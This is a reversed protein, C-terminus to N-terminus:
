GLAVILVAFFLVKATSILGLRRLKPKQKQEVTKLSAVIDEILPLFALGAPHSFLAAAVGGAVLLSCYILGTRRLGPFTAYRVRFSSAFYFLFFAAGLFLHRTVGGSVSSAIVAVLGMIAMGCAEALFRKGRGELYYNLAMLGLAAGYLLGLPPCLWASYSIGAAAPLVLAAMDPLYEWRRGRIMSLLPSKALLMLVLSFFVIASVMVFRGSVAAGSSFAALFMVWAGPEKKWSLNKSKSKQVKGPSGPLLGGAAMDSFTQHVSQAM